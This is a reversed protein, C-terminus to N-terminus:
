KQVLYQEPERAFSKRCAPCCFYYTQGDHEHTYRAGAITVSMGCVPDIAEAPPAVAVAVPAATAAPAHRRREIIEAMISVAVEEAGAAGIDLGAPAKLAALQEPALGEGALYERVANARTASAVLAVYAPAGRLIYGLAIEDYAGHSAVVAYTEPTALAALQSLEAIHEAGDAPASDLDAALVRYRMLAGLRLLAGAIPGDGVVVLRPIPLQPELYIELAGGSFCTMPLDILGARPAQTEPATSLRLLRSQGDALARKAEALVTPQTCSGGVWGHLEGGATVIARDGPKASTPREARVVTATVFPEGRASLEAARAFFNDAM